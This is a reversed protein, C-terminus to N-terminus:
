ARWPRLVHMGTDYSSSSVHTEYSSASVHTDYSAHVQSLETGHNCCMCVAEGLAPQTRLDQSESEVDAGALDGRRRALGHASSGHSGSSGSRNALIMHSDHSDAIMHTQPAISCGIYQPLVFTCLCDSVIVQKELGLVNSHKAIMHTVCTESVADRLADHRSAAVRAAPHKLCSAAVRAAPHKLALAGVHISM